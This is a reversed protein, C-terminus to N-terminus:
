PTSATWTRSTSFPPRAGEDEPEAVGSAKRRLGTSTETRAWTESITPLSGDAAPRGGAGRAAREGDLRQLDPEGVLLEGAGDLDAGVDGVDAPSSEVEPVAAGGPAGVRDLRDLDAEGALHRVGVVDVVTSMNGVDTPQNPLSPAVAPVTPNLAGTSATWTLNTLFPADAGPEVARGERSIGTIARCVEVPDAKDEATPLLATLPLVSDRVARLAM